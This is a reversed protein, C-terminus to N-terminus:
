HVLRYVLDYFNIVEAVTSFEGIRLDMLSASLYGFELILDMLGKGLDLRLAYWIISKM